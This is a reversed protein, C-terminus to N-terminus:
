PKGLHNYIKELELPTFLRSRNRGSEIIKAKILWKVMTVRSVGYENAITKTNKSKESM